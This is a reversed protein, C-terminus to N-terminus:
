RLEAGTQVQSEECISYIRLVRSITNKFGRRLGHELRSQSGLFDARQRDELLM